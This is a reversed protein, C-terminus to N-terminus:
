SIKVIKKVVSESRRPLSLFRSGAPHRITAEKLFRPSSTWVMRFLIQGRAFWHICYLSGFSDARESRFGDSIGKLTRRCRFQQRIKQTKSSELYKWFLLILEHCQTGTQWMSLTIISIARFCLGFWNSFLSGDPCNTSCALAPHESENRWNTSCFWRMIRRYKPFYMWQEAWTSSM